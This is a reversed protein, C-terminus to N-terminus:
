KENPTERQITKMRWLASTALTALCVSNKYKSCALSFLRYIRVLTYISHITLQACVNREDKIENFHVCVMCHACITGRAEIGTSIEINYFTKVRFSYLLTICLCCSIRVTEITFYSISYYACGCFSSSFLFYM